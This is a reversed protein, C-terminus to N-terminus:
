LRLRTLWRFVFRLKGTLLAEHELTVTRETEWGADTNSKRLKSINEAIIPCNELTKGAIQEGTSLGDISPVRRNPSRSM